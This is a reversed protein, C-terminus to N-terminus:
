NDIYIRDEFKDFRLYDDWICEFGTENLMLCRGFIWGAIYVVNLLVRDIERVKPPFLRSIHFIYFEYIVIFIISYFLNIAIGGFLVGFALFFIFQFHLDKDYM